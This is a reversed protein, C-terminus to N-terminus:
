AILKSFEKWCRVWTFGESRRRAKCGFETRQTPNQILFRLQESLHEVNDREFLLGSEGLIEPTGGTRSAVVALGSAMGELLSLACPEDWRSPLVHIDCEALSGAVEMRSLHGTARVDVGLSRLEDVYRSLETQYSDPEWRGWHNSGVLNIRLSGNQKGLLIAARLLLDPAKEIGTRGLFSLTVSQNSGRTAPKFQHLDVGNYIVHVPMEGYLRRVEGAVYESVASAADVAFRFRRAFRPTVVVPNHFHHVIRAKPFRDKLHVALEPDNHLLLTACGLGRDRIVRIVHSAHTRQEAERWGTLRRVLRRRFDRWGSSRKAWMPVSKVDVGSFVPKDSGQTIVFPQCGEARKCVEWIHTAIAGSATPTFTEATNNIQVLRM